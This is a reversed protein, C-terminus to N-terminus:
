APVEPSKCASEWRGKLMDGPIWSLNGIGVIDFLEGRIKMEFNSKCVERIGGGQFEAPVDNRKTATQPDYINVGDHIMYPRKATKWIRKGSATKWFDRIKEFTELNM